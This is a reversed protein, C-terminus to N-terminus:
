KIQLIHCRFQNGFLQPANGGLPDVFLCFTFNAACIIDLETEPASLRSELTVGIGGSVAAVAAKILDIFWHNSIKLVRRGTCSLLAVLFANPNASAISWCTFIRFLTKLSDKSIHPTLATSEVIMWRGELKFVSQSCGDLADM